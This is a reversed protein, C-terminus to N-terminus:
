LINQRSPTMRRGLDVRPKKNENKNTTQSVNETSINLEVLNLLRLKRLVTLFQTKFLHKGSIVVYDEREPKSINRKYVDFIAEDIEHTYKDEIKRRDRSSARDMCTNVDTQVWIFLLKARHKKALDVLEQRSKKTHNESDYVISVNRALFEDAMYNGISGVVRNDQDSYSSEDFLEYRIRDESIHAIDLQDAFQRAFYTKGAGPLGLMAFITTSTLKLNAM